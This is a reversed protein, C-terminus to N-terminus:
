DSSCLSRKSGRHGHAGDRGQRGRVAIRHARVGAGLAGGGGGYGVARLAGYKTKSAFKKLLNKGCSVPSGNLGRAGGPLLGAHRGGLLARLGLSVGLLRPATVWM